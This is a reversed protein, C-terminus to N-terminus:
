SVSNDEESFIDGVYRDIFTTGSVSDVNLNDVIDFRTCVCIGGVHVDSLITGVAQLSQKRATCLRMAGQRKECSNQQLKIFEANIFNPVAKTHVSFFISYMATSETGVVTKCNHKGCTLMEGNIYGDGTKLEEVYLVRSSIDACTNSATDRDALFSISATDPLFPFPM